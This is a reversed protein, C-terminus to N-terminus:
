IEFKNKLAAAAVDDSCCLSEVEPDHFVITTLCIRVYFVNSTLGEIDFGPEILWNCIGILFRYFWHWPFAGFCLSNSELHQILLAHM